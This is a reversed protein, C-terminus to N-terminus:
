YSQIFSGCICHKKVPQSSNDNSCFWVQKEYCSNVLLFGNRISLGLFTKINGCICLDVAISANPVIVKEQSSFAPQLLHYLLQEYRVTVGNKISLRFDQQFIQCVSIKRFDVPTDEEHVAPCQIKHLTQMGVFAPYLSNHDEM